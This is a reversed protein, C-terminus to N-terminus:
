FSDKSFEFGQEFVKLCAKVVDTDLLSGMDKKIQKLAIDKGLAERYPRRSTMAEVVDAVALIRSGIHIDEGKLGRPYGSGDMREHHGYVMEAIPWPFDIDKVLDYSVQPHTKILELEVDSIKGPKSLIEAPINIKGTDHILGALKIGEIEDEPMELIRAIAVSLEAVRRQHGATYPDRTEVILSITDITGRLSQLLSESSDLVETFLAANTISTAIQPSLAELFDMHETSYVGTLYSFVQVVGVVKKERYLPVIVASHPVQEDPTVKKHDRIKGKNIYYSTLSTKRYAFYDDILLPKGSIIVRGQTEMGDKNLPLPPWESIDIEEGDYNAYVCHITNEAQDYESITLQDCPMSNILVNFINNFLQAQNLSQGMQIGSEYLQAISQTKTRLQLETKIRHISIAAQSVITEIIPFFQSIDQKPFITIGGHDQDQWRIGIVCIDGLGYEKTIIECLKKPIKGSALNFLDGDFKELKGSRYQNLQEPSMDKIPISVKLLDLGLLKGLKSIRNGIGFLGMIRMSKEDEDFITTILYGDGILKQINKGILAYIEEITEKQVIAAQTESGLQISSELQKRATIDTLTGEYYQIGGDQDYNASANELAILHTGDKRRYTTEYNLVQGVEKMQHNFVDRELSNVYFNNITESQLEEVSDYGFMKIFAPNAALIKGDPSSRYIGDPVSEFLSSYKAESEDKLNEARMRESIDEVIGDFYITMGKDDQIARANERVSIETGDKKTWETERGKVFGDRTIQELFRERNNGPLLADKNLDRQSLEEFSSYGIMEVLAPNALLIQGDPTTRYIGIPANDYLGFFREESEKLEEKALKSETIDLGYLNVYNAELVPAVFISYTRESFETEVFKTAQTGLTEAVVEQWFNPAREGRACGWEALFKQSGENAYFITGDHNLRMVPNPNESPFKALRRIEQEAERRSTIDRMIGRFGVTSGDADMIPSISAEITRLNGDKRIIEYDYVQVPKGTTYVKNFAQYVVKSTEPSMYQRNNMGMLENKDYGLIGISSDNFFTLNGELDVEYYGDEINELITWYRIESERLNDEALKKERQLRKDELARLVAQGLRTMRDKLVYDAAGLKIMDVAIEEGVTGSVLIFPIDLQREVLLELARRGNFQPLNFDALIIEPASELAKLYDKETEVRQWDPEFEAQHLESLMLEADMENDELILLRIPISM